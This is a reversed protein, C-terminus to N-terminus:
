LVWDCLILMTLDLFIRPFLNVSIGSSKFLLLTAVLWVLM